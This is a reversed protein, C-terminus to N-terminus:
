NNESGVSLAIYHNTNVLVDKFKISYPYSTIFTPHEAIFYSLFLM